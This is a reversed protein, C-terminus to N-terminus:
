GTALETLVARAGAWREPGVRDAWEQEVEALRRRVAANASRGRDTLRVIRARRDHPDPVVEVYGGAELLGLTQALAQKTLGSATAMRSLRQGEPPLFSLLRYHRARLGPFQDDSLAYLDSRLRVM